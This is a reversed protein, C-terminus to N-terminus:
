DSDDFEDYNDGQDDHDVDDGDDDGDDNDKDLNQSLIINTRGKLPKSGMSEWTKRGMIVIHGYTLEKFNELDQKLRPWPIKGQYGIQRNQGMAVVLSIIM